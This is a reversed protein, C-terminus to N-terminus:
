DVKKEVGSRWQITFMCHVSRCKIWNFQMDMLKSAKPTMSGSTLGHATSKETTITTAPQPHVMDELDVHLPVLQKFGYFLAALKSESALAVVHKIITSLTLVACNNFSEDNKMTMYFQGAAHSKGGAESLYPADTHIALIM